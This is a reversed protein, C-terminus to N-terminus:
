ILNKLKRVGSVIEKESLSGYGFILQDNNSGKLIAHKEVSDVVVGNHHLSYRDDLDAHLGMFKVVIHLGANEGFVRIRNGFEDSLVNLLTDRKKQYVKKMKYVHRDFLGEKMFLKLAIQDLMPSQADSFQKKLKFPKVLCPPLVAYGIRLAPSLVKSFSGLYIVKDPDLAKFPHIPPGDYRFESDYDDELIFVNRDQALHLLEIRKSAPLINGMPFQHSPTTYILRTDKNLNVKDKIDNEYFSGTPSLNYGEHNMIEIVGYGGPDEIVVQCGDQFLVRCTLSLAQTAGSTMIIHDPSVSIGKVRALYGSLMNRLERNGEPEYYTLESDKAQIAAKKLFHGWIKKPFLSLDPVGTRFEIVGEPDKKQLPKWESVPNQYKQYYTDPSVRTYSGQTSDTYGEARLQDYAELIVNRSVDLEASLRRSSPLRTGAKLDGNLINDRIIEYVQRFLPKKTKRTIDIHIFGTEM